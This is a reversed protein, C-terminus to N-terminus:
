YSIICLNIQINCKLSKIQDSILLAQDIQRYEGFFFIIRNLFKSSPLTLEVVDKIFRFLQTCDNTKAFAKAIHLYSTASLSEPSGIADIFVESILGIDNKESAAALLVDYANSSIFINEDHLSKIFRATASLNGSRCLKDIYATCIESASKSANETAIAAFIENLIIKEEENLPAANCNRRSPKLSIPNQFLLISASNGPTSLEPVAKSCLLTQRFSRSAFLM